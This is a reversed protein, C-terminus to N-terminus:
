DDEGGDAAADFAVIMIGAFGLVYMASVTAFPSLGLTSFGLLAM